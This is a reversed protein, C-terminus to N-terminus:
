SEAGSDTSLADRCHHPFVHQGTGDGVADANIIPVAPVVGGYISAFAVDAADRGTGIRVFGMPIGMGGPDFIYWRDGLYVEVYAHFDPPGWSRDTGYDTGSAFRAPITLARCLAIMLHAFDRCIGVQVILTDLASTNSNSANRTFTVHDQVWSRIAEVRAYGPSLHGFTNFAFNLLQDSQCYRSPYLYPIVAPPLRHVAVEGISGPDSHAHEISVKASYSVKLTGPSARVIMLRNGSAPDTHMRPTVTQDFSLQEDSVAQHPTQAPHINFVFDAGPQDVKYDLEVNLAIHIMTRDTYILRTAQDTWDIM